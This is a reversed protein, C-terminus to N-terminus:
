SPRFQRIGLRMATSPVVMQDLERAAKRTLRRAIRRCFGAPLFPLYHEFYHEFYTHYTELVPVGRRRALDVGARHAAFPTQIHVLDFAPLRAEAALFRRAPM